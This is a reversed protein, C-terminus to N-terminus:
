EGVEGASGIWVTLWRGAAETRTAQRAGHRVILGDRAAAMFRPGMANHSGVPPGVISRVTEADFPRGTAALDAIARDAAATWAVDTAYTAVDMGADRDARAQDLTLQDARVDNAERISDEARWGSEPAAEDGVHRSRHEPRM